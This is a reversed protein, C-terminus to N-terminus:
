RAAEARLIPTVLSLAPTAPSTWPTWEPDMGWFVWYHVFDNDYDATEWTLTVTRGSHAEGKLTPTWPARNAGLHGTAWPRIVGYETDVWQKTNIQCCGGTAAMISCYYLGGSWWCKGEHHDGSIDFSHGFEHIMTVEIEHAHVCLGQRIDPGSKCYGNNQNPM